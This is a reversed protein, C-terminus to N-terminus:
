DLHKITEHVNSSKLFSTHMGLSPEIQVLWTRHSATAWILAGCMTTVSTDAKRGGCCKYRIRLHCLVDDGGRANKVSFVVAAQKKAGALDCQSVAIVQFWTIGPKALSCDSPIRM